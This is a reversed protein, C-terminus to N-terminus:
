ISYSFMMVGPILSKVEFMAVNEKAYHLIVQFMVIMFVPFGACFVYLLPDRVMEKLNRKMFLITKHM